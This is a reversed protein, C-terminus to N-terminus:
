KLACASKIDAYTGTPDENLDNNVVNMQDQTEKCSATAQKEKMKESLSNVSTLIMLDGNGDTYTTKCECSYSKKCSTITSMSAVVIVAIVLKKM